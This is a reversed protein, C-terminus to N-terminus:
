AIKYKYSGIANIQGCGVSLLVGLKSCSNLGLKADQKPSLMFTSRRLVSSGCANPLVSFM